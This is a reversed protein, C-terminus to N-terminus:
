KSSIVDDVASSGNIKGETGKAEIMSYKINWETIYLLQGTELDIGSYAVCGKQSHGLCCGRQIQRGAGRFYIIEAKRHEDKLAQQEQDEKMKQCNLREQDRKLKQMLMEDYFSGPPPKNHKHLFARVTEALEFVMVEGKLEAAQKQLEKLLDEILVDSLGKSDELALKPPSGLCSVNIGSLMSFGNSQYAVTKPYKSTCTIHLSTRVHAETVGSSGMLPTLMLKLDLPKWGQGKERLDTVDQGFISQIVEFENDQRERNSQKTAM